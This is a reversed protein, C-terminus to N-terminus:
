DKGGVLGTPLGGASRRSAAGGSDRAALKQSGAAVGARCDSCPARVVPGTDNRVQLLSTVPDPVVSGDSCTLALKAAYEKGERTVLGVTLQTIYGCTCSM